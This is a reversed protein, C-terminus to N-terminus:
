LGLQALGLSALFLRTCFHFSNVTKLTLSRRVGFARSDTLINKNTFHTVEPLESDDFTYQEEPESETDPPVEQPASTDQSTETSVLQGDQTVTSTTTSGTDFYNPGYTFNYQTSNNTVQTGTSGDPKLYTKTSSWSPGVATAPGSFSLTSTAKYCAAPDADQECVFKQYQLWDSAPRGATYTDLASYDAEALDTKTTKIDSVSIAKAGSSPWIGSPYWSYGLGSATCNNVHQSFDAPRGSGGNQVPTFVGVAYLVGGFTTVTIKDLTQSAPYIQCINLPNFTGEGSVPMNQYTKAQKQLKTNDDSMVWGVGAVAATVAANLALSAPNTKVINKLRTVIPAKPVVAKPTVKVRTISGDPGNGPLAQSPGYPFQPTGVTSAAPRVTPSPSDGASFRSGSVVDYYTDAGFYALEGNPTQFSPTHATKGVQQATTKIPARVAASVPLSFVFLALLAATHRSCIGM